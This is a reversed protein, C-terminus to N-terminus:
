NACITSDAIGANRLPALVQDLSSRLETEVDIRQVESTSEPVTSYGDSHFVLGNSRQLSEKRLLHQHVLAWIEVFCRYLSNSLNFGPYDRDVKGKKLMAIVEGNDDMVEFDKNMVTKWSTQSTLRINSGRKANFACMMNGTYFFESPIVEHFRFQPTGTNQSLNDFKHEEGSHSMGHCPCSDKGHTPPSDFMESNRCLKELTSLQQFAAETKSPYYKISFETIWDYGDATEAKILEMKYVGECHNYWLYWYPFWGDWMHSIYRLGAKAKLATDTLTTLWFHNILGVAEAIRDNAEDMKKTGMASLACVM